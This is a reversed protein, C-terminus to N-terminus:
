VEKKAARGAQDGGIQHFATAFHRQDFGPWPGRQRPQPLGNAGGSHILGRDLLDENGVNM